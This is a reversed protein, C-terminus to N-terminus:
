TVQILPLIWLYPFRFLSTSSRSFFVGFQYVTQYWRYQAHINLFDCSQEFYALEFQLVLLLAYFHHFFFHSQYVNFRRPKGISSQHFVRRYLRSHTTGCVELSAAIIYTKWAICIRTYNPCKQFFIPKQWEGTSIPEHPVHPLTCSHAPIPACMHSLTRSFRCYFSLFGFIM